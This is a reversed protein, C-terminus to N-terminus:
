KPARVVRGAPKAYAKSRINSQAALWSDYIKNQLMFQGPRLEINGIHVSILSDPQEHLNNDPVYGTADELEVLRAVSIRLDPIM